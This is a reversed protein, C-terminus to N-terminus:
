SGTFWIEPSKMSKKNNSLLKGFHRQRQRVPSRSESPSIRLKELSSKEVLVIIKVTQTPIEIQFNSM